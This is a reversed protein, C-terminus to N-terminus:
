ICYRRSIETGPAIWIRDWTSGVLGLGHLIANTTVHGSEEDPLYIGPYDAKKRYAWYLQQIAEETVKHLKRYSVANTATPSRLLNVSKSIEQKEAESRPISTLVVM